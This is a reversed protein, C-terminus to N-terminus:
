SFVIIGQVPVRRSSSKGRSKKAASPADVAIIDKRKRDSVDMVPTSFNATEANTNIPQPLSHVNKTNQM